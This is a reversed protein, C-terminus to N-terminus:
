GQRYSASEYESIEVTKAKAAKEFFGIISTKAVPEKPVRGYIDRKGASGLKLMEHLQEVNQKNPASYDNLGKFNEQLNEIMGILSFNIVYLIDEDNFDSHQKINVIVPLLTAPISNQQGNVMTEFAILYKALENNRFFTNNVHELEKELAKEALYHFQAYTLKAYAHRVFDVMAQQQSYRKDSYSQKPNFGGGRLISVELEGIDTTSLTNTTINKEVGKFLKETRKM